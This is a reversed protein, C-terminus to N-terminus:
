ERNWGDTGWPYVVFVVLYISLVYEQVYEGDVEDDENITVLEKTPKREKTLNSKKKEKSLRIV